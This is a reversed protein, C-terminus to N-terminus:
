TAHVLFGSLNIWTKKNFELTFGKLLLVFLADDHRLPLLVARNHLFCEPSGPKLPRTKFLMNNNAYLGVVCCQEPHDCFQATLIVYYFGDVPIIVHTSNTGTPTALSALDSVVFQVYSNETKLAIRADLSWIVNYRVFVPAYLFGKFSDWRHDTNLDYHPCQVQVYQNQKLRVVITFSTTVSCSYYFGPHGFIQKLESFYM